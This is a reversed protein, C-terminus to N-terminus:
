VRRASVLALRRTGRLNIGDLHTPAIRRLQEAGPSEGESAQLAELAHQMHTTNWAMLINAFLTLASSVASHIRGVHITRQVVHM